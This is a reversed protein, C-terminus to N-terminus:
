AVPAGFELRWTGAFCWTGLSPTGLNGPLPPRRKRRRLKLVGGQDLTGLKLRGLGFQVLPKEARSKSSSGFKTSTNQLKM